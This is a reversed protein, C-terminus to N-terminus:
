GLLRVKGSTRLAQSATAKALGSVPAVVTPTRASSVPAPGLTTPQYGAGGRGPVNPTREPAGEAIPSQGMLRNLERLADSLIRIPGMTLANLVTSLGPISDKWANFADMVTKTNDAIVALDSLLTGLWEGMSEFTPEMDRMTQGFSDAGNLKDMGGQVANLFGTGFAEQLEGMGLKMRDIKGKFTEAQEAATGGFLKQLANTADYVDGSKIATKDLEPVLKLLSDYNGGYAKALAKVIPELPEGKAKATELAANMLIQADKFEGTKGVLLALAPYTEDESVGATDQLARLYDQAKQLDQSAGVAAFSKELKLNAQEQDAAAQIGDVAFKAALAGAAAGAALMAPGLVNKMSGALGGISGDFGRMRREADDLGDRFKKTDAAIFVQLTRGAM